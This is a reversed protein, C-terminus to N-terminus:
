VNRYRCGEFATDFGCVAKFRCYDCATVRGSKMPSAAVKGSILDGCLTELLEDVRLRVQRFEDESLLRGEGTGKIGEKTSRLSCIGSYDDFEGAISRIVEEDDLLMGDLRYRRIRDKEIAEELKGDSVDSADLLPEDIHFYFVGAGPERPDLVDQVAKLYIMLQLRYGKEVEKLDFKENGSKYDIIKVRDKKLVDVRDIKGEITMQKGAAEIPIPPFVAGPGSGFGAEFEVRQIDGQRVHEILTWAVQRCVNKIREKKYSEEPGQVLLGERYLAAEQDVITDVLSYCQEKDITMWPSCEATISGKGESLKRSIQMLCQHYLDGIERGAVQYIRREEPRIGYNMLYYFPCRSYGEIGSPSLRLEGSERQYLAEALQKDLNEEKGTHFIGGALKELTEGQNARYWSLAEQWEGEVTEGELGQRLVGTLHRLGSQPSALLDLNEGKSLIDKEPLIDYLRTLTEFIRSPKIDKGEEDTASCSIWLDRRPMAMMRYIGLKEEENMLEEMKCLQIRNRFLRKKEEESLLGETSKEQPLIGDNAGLVVLAKLHSFRSRQMTGVTLRDLTPPILGIEMASFGTNMLAAFELDPMEEEELLLMMQDMLDVVTQWIQRTEDALEQQGKGELDAMLAELKEPLRAVGSMWRYLARLKEGTKKAKLFEEELSVLGQVLTERERNREELGEEGYESIGRRFPKKWQSGRIRYQIAYNELEEATEPPLPGLGTKVLRFLDETRWGRIILDLVSALCEVLPNHTCSRRTDLFVPIGYEEFTRRIISGRIDLDNCIVAMDRFRLGQDRVLSIIHAAASETESYLNAGRVLTVGKRCEAPKMPLSFLERELAGISPRKEEEGEGEPIRYAEQISIERSVIGEERAMQLIRDRMGRTVSFLDEDRGGEDLTLVLNVEQAHKMLERIMELNKPTFYDFGWVWVRNSRIEEYEALRSIFLGMRDETDAYRGRITEEYRSYIRHIDRLKKKLLPEELGSVVEELSEPTTSFQKMESILDNMALAFAPKGELGRFAELNPAEERLIRTLVMHRGVQDVFPIRSGGTQSLIRFGLRSPSLVELDMLGRVGLISFARQEAGLTFQDPVLLLTKGQIHDFIFKEKDLNERGSYINLM